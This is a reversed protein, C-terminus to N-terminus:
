RALPLDHPTGDALEFHVGTMDIRPALVRWDEDAPDLYLTGAGGEVLASWAGGRRLVASTRRFTALTAAPDADPRPPQLVRLRIV